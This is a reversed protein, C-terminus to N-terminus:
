QHCVEWSTAPSRPFKTLAAESQVGRTQVPQATPHFLPECQGGPGLGFTSIKVLGLGRDQASELWGAIQVLDTPRPLSKPYGRLAHCARRATPLRTAAWMTEAFGAERRSLVAFDRRFSECRHRLVRPPIHPMSLPLNLQSGGSSMRTKPTM